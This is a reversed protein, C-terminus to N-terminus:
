LSCHTWLSSIPCLRPSCPRAHPCRKMGDNSGSTSLLFELDSLSAPNSVVGSAPPQITFLSRLRNDWCNWSRIVNERCSCWRSKSAVFTKCSTLLAAAYPALATGSSSTIFLFSPVSFYFRFLLFREFKIRIMTTIKQYLTVSFFLQGPVYFAFITQCLAAPAAPLM